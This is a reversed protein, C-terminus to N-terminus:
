SLKHQLRSTTDCLSMSLQEACRQGLSFPAWSTSLSQKNGAPTANPFGAAVPTHPPLALALVRCAIPQKKVNLPQQASCFQHPPCCFRGCPQQLCCCTGAERGGRPIGGHRDAFKLHSNTRCMMGTPERPDASADSPTAEFREPWFDEARTYNYPGHHLLYASFILPTGKPLRYGGVVMDRDLQRCFVTGSM